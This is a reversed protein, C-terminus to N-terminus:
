GEHAARWQQTAHEIEEEYQKVARYGKQTVRIGRAIEPKVEIFGKDQVRKIRNVVPSTSLLKFYDRIERVTPPRKHVKFYGDIYQVLEVDDRDSLKQSNSM